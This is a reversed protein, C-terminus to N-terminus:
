SQQMSKTDSSYVKWHMDIHDNGLMLNSSFGMKDVSAHIQAGGKLMLDKSYSSLLKAM